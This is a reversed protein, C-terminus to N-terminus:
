SVKKQLPYKNFTNINYYICSLPIITNVKLTSDATFTKLTKFIPKLLKCERYLYM